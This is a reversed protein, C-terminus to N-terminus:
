KILMGHMLTLLFVDRKDVKNSQSELSAKLHKYSISEKEPLHFITEFSIPCMSQEKLVIHKKQLAHAIVPVLVDQTVISQCVVSILRSMVISSLALDSFLYHCMFKIARFIISLSLFSITARGIPPLGLRDYICAYKQSVQHTRM